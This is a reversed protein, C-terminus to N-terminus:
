FNSYFHCRVVVCIYWELTEVCWFDPCLTAENRQLPGWHASISTGGPAATRKQTRKWSWQNNSSGMDKLWQISTSNKRSGTLWPSSERLAEQWRGEYAIWFSHKCGELAASDTQRVEKQVVLQLFSQAKLPGAHPPWVMWQAVCSWRTVPTFGTRAWAGASICPACMLPVPFGPVIQYSQRGCEAAKYEM